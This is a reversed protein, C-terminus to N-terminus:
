AFFSAGLKESSSSPLSRRWSRSCGRGPRRYPDVCSWCPLYCRTALSSDDPGGLNRRNTTSVGLLAGTMVIAPAKETKPFDEVSGRHDPMM